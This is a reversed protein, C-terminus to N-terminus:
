ECDDKLAPRLRLESWLPVGGTFPPKFSQLRLLPIEQRYLKNMTNLMAAAEESALLDQKRGAPVQLVTAALFALMVPDEPLQSTDFAVDGAESLTRLYRELWPRLRQGATATLRADAMQLPFSEVLGVLYPQDYQLEHIRFRERGLALVNLRGEQLRQVQAIEATCGVTHPQAVPGLAEEVKQILVVGFPHGQDLCENIMQKYRAEFIHLTIPMGPFLVTNLPFLPLNYIM